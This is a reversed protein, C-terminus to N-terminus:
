NVRFLEARVSDAGYTGRLVMYQENVLEYSGTFSPQGIGHMQLAKSASDVTYKVRDTRDGKEISAMTGGGQGEFIVKAWAESSAAGEGQTKGNREFTHVNWIGFVPREVFYQDAYTIEYRWLSSGIVALVCMAKIVRATAQHKPPLVRGYGGKVPRHDWFLAKLREFELLVLCITMMLFIISNLKVSINYAFNVFVINGIIPLLLVAGLLQTKRFLLLTARLM